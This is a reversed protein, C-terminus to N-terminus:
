QIFDNVEDEDFGEFVLGPHNSSVFKQSRGVAVPKNSKGSSAEKSSGSTGASVSKVKQRQAEIKGKDSVEGLEEKVDRDVKEFISKLQKSNKGALIYDSKLISNFKGWYLDGKDKEPSYEPHEEIFVSLTNNAMEKYTDGKKIFGKKAGIIDFAKDLTNISDEEYGLEKLEADYDREDLKTKDGKFLNESEKERRERKLRTVELRLAKERPTEGDVEKLEVTKAKSSEASEEESTEIEETEEDDSEESEEDNTEESEETEENDKSELSRSKDDVIVEGAEEAEEFAAIDDETLDDKVEKINAM